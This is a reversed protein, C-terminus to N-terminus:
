AVAESRAEPTAPATAVVATAGVAMAVAAAAALVEPRGMAAPVAAAALRAGTARTEAVQVAWAAVKVRRAAARGEAQAGEKAAPAAAPAALVATEETGVWRGVAWGEERAAAVMRELGKAEVEAQVTRVPGTGEEM